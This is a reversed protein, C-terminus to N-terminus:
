KRLREIKSVFQSAEIHTDFVFDVVFIYDVEGAINYKRLTYMEDFVGRDKSDAIKYGVMFATLILALIVCGVAFTVLYYIDINQLKKLTGKM